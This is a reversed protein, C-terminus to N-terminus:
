LEQEQVWERSERVARDTYQPEGAPERHDVEKNEAGTFLPPTQKKGTKQRKKM